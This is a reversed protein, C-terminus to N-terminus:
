QDRQVWGAIAVVLLTLPQIPTSMVSSKLEWQGVLRLCANIGFRGSADTKLGNTNKSVVPNLRGKSLHLSSVRQANSYKSWVAVATAEDLAGRDFESYEEEVLEIVPPIDRGSNFKTPYRRCRHISKPLLSM